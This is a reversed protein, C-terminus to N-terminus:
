RYVKWDRVVSPTAQMTLKVDKFIGQTYEGRGGCVAVLGIYVPDPFSKTRTDVLKWEQLLPNFNYCFFVDGRRDIRFRGESSTRSGFEKTYGLGSQTCEFVYCEPSGVGKAEMTACSFSHSKSDSFTFITIGATHVFPNDNPHQTEIQAEISCDGYTKCYLYHGCIVDVAGYGLTTYISYVGTQSDYAASSSPISGLNFHNQFIGIPDPEVRDMAAIGGIMRDDVTGTFEVSGIASDPPFVTYSLISELSSSSLNWTIVGEKVVSFRAYLVNTITWGAPPREVISVDVLEIRTVKISVVVPVGPTYGPSSMTRVATPQAPADLALELVLILCVAICMGIKKM